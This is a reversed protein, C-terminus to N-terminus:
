YGGIGRTQGMNEIAEFKFLQNVNPSNDHGVEEDLIQEALIRQNEAKDDEDEGEYIEALALRALAEFDVAYVADSSATRTPPLWYFSYTITTGTEPAPSIHMKIADNAADYWTYVLQNANNQNYLEKFKKQDVIQYSKDPTTGGVFVETLGKLKMPYSASGVTYDNAGTGTTTQDELYFLQWHRRKALAKEQRTVARIRKASTDTTAEGRYDSIMQLIDEVTAKYLTAM